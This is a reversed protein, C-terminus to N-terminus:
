ASDVVSVQARRRKRSSDSPTEEENVAMAASAPAAVASAAQEEQQQQLLIAKRREELELRAQLRKQLDEDRRAELTRIIQMFSLSLSLFPRLLCCTLFLDIL